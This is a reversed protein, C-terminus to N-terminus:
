YQDKRYFNLEDDAPESFKGRNKLLEEIEESEKRDLERQNDAVGRTYNRTELINGNEDYRYYKGHKLDDVYPVVIEPKGNEYFTRFTGQRVGHEYYAEFLVKGDPFYRRWFGHKEGDKYKIYQWPQGDHYYYVFEGHYVGRKFSEIMLLVGDKNYYHWISDKKTNYHWGIAMTDKDTWYLTTSCQLSDGFFFQKSLLNGKKNYRVFDGKPVDDVFYGDYKTYGSYFKQVWRGQRLGNIDRYNLLTDGGDQGVNQAMVSFASGIILSFILLRM